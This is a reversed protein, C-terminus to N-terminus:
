NKYIGYPDNMSDHAPGNLSSESLNTGTVVKFGDNLTKNWTWNCENEFTCKVGLVDETEPSDLIKNENQFYIFHYINFSLLM